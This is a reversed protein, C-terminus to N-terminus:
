YKPPIKLLTTIYTIDFTSKNLRYKSGDPFIIYWKNNDKYITCEMWGAKNTSFFDFRYREKFEYYGDEHWGHLVFYPICKYGSQNSLYKYLKNIKNQDEIKYNKMLELTIYVKEVALKSYQVKPLKNGLNYPYNYYVIPIIIVIILIIFLVLIKKRM